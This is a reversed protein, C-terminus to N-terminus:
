HKTTQPKKQKGGGDAGTFYVVFPLFFFSHGFNVKHEVKVSKKMPFTPVTVADGRPSTFRRNSEMSRGKM